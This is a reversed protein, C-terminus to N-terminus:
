GRRVHLVNSQCVSIREGERNLNSTTVEPRVDRMKTNIKNECEIKKENQQKKEEEFDSHTHAHAKRRAGHVKQTQNKKLTQAHRHTRTLIYTNTHAKMDAM